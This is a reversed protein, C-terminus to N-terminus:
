RGAGSGPTAATVGLRESPTFTVPMTEYGSVFNAARKPPEGENALQLDPL